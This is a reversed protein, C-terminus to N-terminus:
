LAITDYTNNFSANTLDILGSLKVIYDQSNNFTTSEAGVDAVVYTNGGFQFWGVAVTNGGNVLSNMAANAYDQFVATDGLSVKASVFTDAAAIQLLDGAAFDTITAYSNVNLSATAVRFVDNGEGGTLTTLGANAVLVDNGAGGLLVDATTGTASTLVDNGAGGKITTATTTNLSTVVLNGTLTSGDISTVKTSGTTTLNVNASGTVNVTTAKDATLVLTASEVPAEATSTTGDGDDDAKTDSSSINVTEVNAVTLTGFDINTAAVNAVVNVVDATSTAAAADKVTVTILGKATLVVTGETALNALTLGDNTGANGATGFVTGATSVYNTFGLNALDLTLADVTANDTGFANTLSLREFNTYFTQKAADLGDAVATTMALTDTGDGGSLTATSGTVALAGFSLQDDGAGLDISKTLATGTALTVSDVGAGGAYTAAAGNITVTVTGTTGTTNVSTVTNAIGANLKVGATETVIITKLADLDTADADFVGTGSVNLTETLASTL